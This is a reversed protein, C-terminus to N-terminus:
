IAESSVWMKLVLLAVVLFRKAPNKACGRGGPALKIRQSHHNESNTAAKSGRGGLFQTRVFLKLKAAALKSVQVSIAALLRIFTTM